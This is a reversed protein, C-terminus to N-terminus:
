EEFYDVDFGFVRAGDDQVTLELELPATSTLTLSTSALGLEDGVRATFRTRGEQTLRVQIPHPNSSQVSADAMGYRFVARRAASPTPITARVQERSVPHLFLLPHPEGAMTLTERRLEQWPQDGYRCPLPRNPGCTRRTGDPAVREVRIAQGRRRASTLYGPADRRTAAAAARAPEWFGWLRRNERAAAAPDQEPVAALVAFAAAFVVGVIVARRATPRVFRSSLGPPEAALGATAVAAVAFLLPVVHVWNAAAGELGLAHGIGYAMEGRLYTPGVFTALPNDYVDSLHPYIAAAFGTLVISSAGLAAVWARLRPVALAEVVWLGLLPALPIIYRPGLTWGGRWNDHSSVFLVELVFAVLATVALVRHGRVTSSRSSTPTVARTICAALGLLLVPSYFFLGAEPSFLAGSLWDLHPLEVGFFGRGHREAYARNELFGYGTAFAAGWMKQHVWLGFTFIPLGGLAFWGALQARWLWGPTLWLAGILAPGAVLAAPYEAFPAAAASIGALIGLTRFRPTAVDSRALGIACLYTGGAAAAALLHGTFLLSFPYLMTGLALSLGVATGLDRAAGLEVARRRCWALLLWSFGIGILVSGFIRVVFTVHRMDRPLGLAKLVGTGLVYGPVGVLSQLPAKSSYLRGDRKAKDDVGRWERIVPDIAFTGHEVIARTMYVRVMENPNHLGAHYPSTALYLFAVLAYPWLDWLRLRRAGPGM